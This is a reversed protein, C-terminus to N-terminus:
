LETRAAEREHAWEVALELASLSGMGVVAADSISDTTVVNYADHALTRQQSTESARQM